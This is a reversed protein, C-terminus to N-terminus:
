PQAAIPGIGRDHGAVAVTRAYSATGPAAPVVAHLPRLISVPQYRVGVVRARDGHRALELLAILGERSRPTQIAAPTVGAILNGESFVAYKGAIRRIPQVVHPGQAVVASVAPSSLLSEVLRVQGTGPESVYEWTFEPEGPIALWPSWLVADSTWHINVIM